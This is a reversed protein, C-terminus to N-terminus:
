ECICVHLHLLALLPTHISPSLFWMRATAGDQDTWNHDSTAHYGGEMGKRGDMRGKM